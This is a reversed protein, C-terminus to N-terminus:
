YFSKFSYDVVTKLAFPFTSNNTVNVSNNNKSKKLQWHLNKKVLFREHITSTKIILIENHVIRFRFRFFVVNNEIKSINIHVHKVFIELPDINKCSPLKHSHFTRRSM